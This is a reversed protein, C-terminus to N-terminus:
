CGAFADTTNTGVNELDPEFRAVALWIWSVWHPLVGSGLEPVSILCSPHMHGHPFFM